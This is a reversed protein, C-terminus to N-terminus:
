MHFLIIEAKTLTQRFYYYYYGSKWVKQVYVTVGPPVPTVSTLLNVAVSSVQILEQRSDYTSVIENQKSESETVSVFLRDTAVEHANAPMVHNLFQELPTLLDAGPTLVGVPRSRTIHAM